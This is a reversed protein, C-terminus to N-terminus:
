RRKSISPTCYSSAKHQRRVLLAILVMLALFCLMSALVAAAGLRNSSGSSRRITEPIVQQINAAQAPQEKHKLQQRRLLGELQERPDATSGSESDVSNEKAPAAQGAYSEQKATPNTKAVAPTEPVPEEVIPEDGTLQIRVKKYTMRGDSNVAIVQLLTDNGLLIFHSKTIDEKRGDWVAVIKEIERESDKASIDVRYQGDYQLIPESISISTTSGSGGSHHGGGSGTTTEKPIPRVVPQSLDGTDDVAQCELYTTGSAVACEIPNGEYFVSNVYIGMITANLRTTDARVRALKNENLLEVSTVAISDTVESWGPVRKIVIESKDGENNVAQVKLYQSNRITSLITM